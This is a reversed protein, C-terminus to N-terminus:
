DLTDPSLKQLNCITLSVCYSKMVAYEVLMPHTDMHSVCDDSLLSSGKEQCHPTHWSSTNKLSSDFNPKVFSYLM